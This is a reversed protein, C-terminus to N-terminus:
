RDMGTILRLCVPVLRWRECGPFDDGLLAELRDVDGAWRRYTPLFSHDHWQAWGATGPRPEAQRCQDLLVVANLVARAAEVLGHPWADDRPSDAAIM